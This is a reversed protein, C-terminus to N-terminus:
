WFHLVFSLLALPLKAAIRCQSMTLLLQGNKINGVSKRM